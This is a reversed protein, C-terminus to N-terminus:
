TLIFIRAAIRPGKTIPDALADGSAPRSMGEKLTVLKEAPQTGCEEWM